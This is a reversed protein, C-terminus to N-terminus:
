DDLKRWYKYYAVISRIEGGCCVLCGDKGLTVASVTVGARALFRLAGEPDSEGTLLVAEEDSIKMIDVSDSVSPM